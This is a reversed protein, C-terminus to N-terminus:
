QLKAKKRSVRLINSDTFPRTVEFGANRLVLELAISYQHPNKTRSLVGIALGSLVLMGYGERESPGGRVAHEFGADELASSVAIMILDKEDQHSM